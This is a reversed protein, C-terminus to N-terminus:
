LLWRRWRPVSRLTAPSVIVGGPFAAQALKGLQQGQDFREQLGPEDLIAAEPAYTQLYLRKLCQIGVVFRSKSLRAFETAQGPFIYDNIIPSM